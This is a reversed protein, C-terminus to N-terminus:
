IKANEYFGIKDNQREHYSAASLRAILLPIEEISSTKRVEPPKLRGTVLNIYNAIRSLTDILCLTCGLLNM